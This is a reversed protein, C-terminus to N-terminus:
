RWRRRTPSAWCRQALRAGDHARLTGGSPASRWRCRSSGSWIRTRAATMPAGPPWRATAGTTAAFAHAGAEVARWDNGTAIVVADVGNM